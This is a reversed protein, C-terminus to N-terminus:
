GCVPWSKVGNMDRWKLARYDQEAPPADAPDGHGGARAWDPWGFQYRGRYKPNRKDAYGNSECNGVKNLWARDAASIPPYASAAKARYRAIVRSKCSASKCVRAQCAKTNCGKSYHSTQSTATASFIVAVAVFLLPVLVRRISRRM